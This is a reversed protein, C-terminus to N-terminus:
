DRKINKLVDLLKSLPNTLFPIALLLISISSPVIIMLYNYDEKKVLINYNKLIFFVAFSCAIGIILFLISSIYFHSKKFIKGVKLISKKSLSFISCSFYLIFLFLFIFCILTTIGLGVEDTQFYYQCLFSLFVCIASEVALFVFQLINIKIFEFFDKIDNKKELKNKDDKPKENNKIKDITERKENLIIFLNKQDFLGLCQLIIKKNENNILNNLDILCYSCYYKTLISLILNIKRCKQNEDDLPLDKLSNLEELIKTKADDFNEEKMFVATLSFIKSNIDLVFFGKDGLGDYSVKIGDVYIFGHRPEKKLKLLNFLVENDIFKSGEDFTINTIPEKRNVILNEIKIM